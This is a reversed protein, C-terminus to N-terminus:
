SAKFKFRFRTRVDSDSVAVSFDSDLRIFSNTKYCFVDSDRDFLTTQKIFFCRFSKLMFWNYEYSCRVHTFMFYLMLTM